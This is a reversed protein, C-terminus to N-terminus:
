IFVTADDGEITVAVSQFVFDVVRPQGEDPPIKAEDQVIGELNGM